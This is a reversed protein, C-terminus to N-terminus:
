QEPSGEALAARLEAIAAQWGDWEHAPWLRDPDYADDVDAVIQQMRQYRRAWRRRQMISAGLLTALAAVDIGLLASQHVAWAWVLCGAMLLSVTVGGALPYVVWAYATLTIALLSLLHAADASHHASLTTTVLLACVVLVALAVVWRVTKIEDPNM